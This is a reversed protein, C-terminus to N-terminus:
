TTLEAAPPTFTATYLAAGKTIRVDDIYGNLPAAGDGRAGISLNATSNFLNIAFAHTSNLVGDRFFRLNTGDFSMAMHYWTNASHSIAAGYNTFNAGTSSFWGGLNANNYTLEWSRQDGPGHYHGVLTQADTTAGNFRAWCEVTFLGTAFHWDPSDPVTLRASVDDGQFSAAGFRMVTTNIAGGTRTFVHGRGTIDTPPDANINTLLMTNPSTGSTAAVGSMLPSFM